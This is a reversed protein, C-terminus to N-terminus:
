NTPPGEHMRKNDPIFAHDDTVGTANYVQVGERLGNVSVRLAAIGLDSSNTIQVKQEFLGTQLNLQPTGAKLPMCEIVTLSASNTLTNCPGTVLVSYIAADPETIS